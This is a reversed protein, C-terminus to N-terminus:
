LTGKALMDHEALYAMIESLQENLEGNKTVLEKVHAELDSDKALMDVVDEIGSETCAQLTLFVSQVEEPLKEFGDLLPVKNLLLLAAKLGAPLEYVLLNPYLRKVKHDVQEITLPKSTTRKQSM